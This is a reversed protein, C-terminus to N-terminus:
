LQFAGYSLIRFNSTIIIDTCYETCLIGLNRKRKKEKFLLNCTKFLTNCKEMLQSVIILTPYCNDIRIM